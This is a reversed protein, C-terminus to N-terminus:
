FNSGDSFLRVDDPFLDVKVNEIFELSDGANKQIELLGKMWEIARGGSKNPSEDTTKYLYHGALGNNAFTEM